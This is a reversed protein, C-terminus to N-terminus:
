CNGDLFKLRSLSVPILLNALAWSKGFNTLVPGRCLVFKPFHASPREGTRRHAVLRKQQKITESENVTVKYCGLAAWKFNRCGVCRIRGLFQHREQIQPGWRHSGPSCDNTGVVFKSVAGHVDDAGM